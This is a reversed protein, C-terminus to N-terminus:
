PIWVNGSFCFEQKVARYWSLRPRYNYFQQYKLNLLKVRIFTLLIKSSNSLRIRLNPAKINLVKVSIRVYFHRLFHPDLSIIKMKRLSTTNDCFKARETIDKRGSHFRYTSLSLFFIYRIPQELDHIITTNRTPCQLVHLSDVTCGKRNFSRFFTTISNTTLDMAHGLAANRM